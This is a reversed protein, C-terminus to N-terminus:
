LVGKSYAVDTFIRADEERGCDEVPKLEGLLAEQATLAGEDEAAPSQGDALARPQQQM